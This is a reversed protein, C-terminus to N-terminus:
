HTDVRLSRYESKEHRDTGTGYHISPDVSHSHNTEYETVLEFQHQVGLTGEHVCLATLIPICTWHVNAVAGFM